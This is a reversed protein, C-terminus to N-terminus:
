LSFYGFNSGFFIWNQNLFLLALDFRCFTGIDLEFVDGNADVAVPDVPVEPPGFLLGGDDDDEEDEVLPGSAGTVVVVVDDEDEDDKDGDSADLQLTDENDRAVDVPGTEVDTEDDANVM